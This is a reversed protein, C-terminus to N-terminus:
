DGEFGNGDKTLDSVWSVFLFTFFFDRGFFTQFACCAQTYMYACMLDRNSGQIFQTTLQSILLPWKEPM